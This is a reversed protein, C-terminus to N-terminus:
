TNLLNLTYEPVLGADKLQWVFNNIQEIWRMDLPDNAMDWEIADDTYVVVSIKGEGFSIIAYYDSFESAVGDALPLSLQAKHRDLIEVLHQKRQAKVNEM